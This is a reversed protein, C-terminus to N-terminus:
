IEVDSITVMCYPNARVQSRLVDEAKATHCWPLPMTATGFLDVMEAAHPGSFVALWCKSDPSRHLTITNQEQSM